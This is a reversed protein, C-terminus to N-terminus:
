PIPVDGGPQSTGLLPPRRPLPSRPLHLHPSEHSQMPAPLTGVSTGQGTGHGFPVLQEM